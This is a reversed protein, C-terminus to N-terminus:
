LSAEGLETKLEREAQLWDSLETGLAEGRAAFIEYARRQIQEHTPQQSKLKTITTVGDAKPPASTQAQVSRNRRKM